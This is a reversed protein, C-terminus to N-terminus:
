KHQQMLKFAIDAVKEAAGGEVALTQKVKALMTKIYGYREKNNIIDLVEAAIDGPTAQKQILEPMVGEGAVLNVLGIHKVKILLRGLFYNVLSVKYIICMPLGHLGAELTVTGSAAILVDARKFVDLAFDCVEVKVDGNQAVIGDFVDGAVWPAKSLLFRVQPNQKHILAASKLMTDLLRGVEGNRSGPLIGVVPNQPMTRALVDEVTPFKRDLLPHGVYTVPMNYSQYFQEEFPLIVAMHSVYRVIKKVRGQRWAWIQPSVYYLVPINLKKAYKALLMNFDPFDILIVVSPKTQRLLKKLTKLAKFYVPLKGLVATFGIVALNTSDVALKVGAARMNQGGMGFMEMDPDKELLKLAVKAGHADGSAEGAVIVARRPTEKSSM